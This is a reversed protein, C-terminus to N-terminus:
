VVNFCVAMNNGYNIMDIALQEHQGKFDPKLMDNSKVMEHCLFMFGAKRKEYVLNFHTQIAKHEQLIHYMDTWFFRYDVMREMSSLIDKYIQTIHFTTEPLDEVRKDFVEVMEFYLAELIDERKKYHYNLNGSSMGLAEAIM